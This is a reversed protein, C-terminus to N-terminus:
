FTFVLHWSMYSAKGDQEIIYQGVELSIDAETTHVKILQTTHFYM